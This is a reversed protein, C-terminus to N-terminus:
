GPRRPAPPPPPFPRLVPPPSVMKGSPPFVPLPPGGQRMLMLVAGFVGSISGSAGIVPDTSDSFFLVHVAGAVIGASLYFLVFRRVGLLREVPAGFAALSLMNVGLHVWGGHLFQYTVLSVVGLLLSGQDGTINAPVLGFEIVLQQDISDSLVQRLLHIAVNIAILWLIAPPLNIAREGTGRRQGARKLNDFPM